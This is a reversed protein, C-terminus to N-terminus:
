HWVGRARGGAGQQEGQTLAGMRTVLRQFCAQWKEAVGEIQVGIAAQNGGVMAKMRRQLRSQRIVLVVLSVLRGRQAAIQLREAQSHCLDVGQRQAALQRDDSVVGM